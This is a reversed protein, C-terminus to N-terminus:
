PSRIAQDGFQRDVVAEFRDRLERMQDQGLRQGVLSAGHLGVIVLIGAPIAWFGWAPENSAWQVYGLTTGFLIITAMLFYLFMIGTWIDPRPSFRARIISGESHPEVHVSLRPSWIKRQDAPVLFEAWSGAAMTAASYASTELGERILLVADEVPIPVEIAFRPRMRLVDGGGGPSPETTVIPSQMPDRSETFPAISVEDSTAGRRM